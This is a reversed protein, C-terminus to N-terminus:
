LLGRSKLNCAHQWTLDMLREERETTPYEVGPILSPRGYINCNDPPNSVKSDVDGVNGYLNESVRSLDDPKKM